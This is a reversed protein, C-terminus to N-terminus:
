CCSMACSAGVTRSAGQDFPIAQIAHLEAVVGGLAVAGGFARGSEPLHQGVRFAGHLQQHTLADNRRADVGLDVRLRDATGEFAEGALLGGYLVFAAITGGTM